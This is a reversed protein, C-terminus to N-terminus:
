RRGAACGSPYRATDGTIANFVDVGTQKRGSHIVTDCTTTKKAKRVSGKGANELEKTIERERKKLDIKKLLNYIAEGGKEAKFLGPFQRSLREYKVEEIITNKQISSLEAIRDKYLENLMLRTEEQVAKQIKEDFEKKIERELRKRKEEDVETIYHASFYVVNQVKQAPLNLVAAIQSPVKRLYWFHAVPAALDIHGMRERRVASRTIEVGCNSCEIGQYQIGKYKGCSCQFDHEPGFIKECFLGEREARQTRYNITEPKTVEGFSWSLIDEPAAIKINLADFKQTNRITRKM